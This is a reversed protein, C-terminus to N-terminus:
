IDERGAVRTVAIGDVGFHTEFEIVETQYVLGADGKEKEGEVNLSLERKGECSAQVWEMYEPAGPFIINDAIVMSGVGVAGLGELLRLDSLYVDKWHDVFVMSVLGIEKRAVLGRLLEAATGVLVTVTESLGALAILQNAVAAMEPNMELSIYKGGHSRMVSGFKIASYGIYGGLELMLQPQHTQILDSIYAGKEPGVNMLANTQTSYTNIATLINAPNNTLTSLDQAYIYHLLDTERGDLSYPTPKPSFPKSM